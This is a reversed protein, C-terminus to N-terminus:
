LCNNQHNYIISIAIKQVGNKLPAMSYRVTNNIVPKPKTRKDIVPVHLVCSCVFRLGFTVLSLSPGVFHGHPMIPLKRGQLPANLASRHHLHTHRHRKHM